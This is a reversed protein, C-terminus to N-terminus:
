MHVAKALGLLKSSLKLGADQAAKLNVEFRIRNQDVILSIVGGQDVFGPFDGVTLINLGHTAELVQETRSGEAAAVFLLHCGKLQSLTVRQVQVPRTGVMKGGLLQQLDSDFSSDGFVCFRIPDSGSVFARPPWEVFKAFNYIFAAKVQYETIAETQACVWGPSVTVFLVALLIAFARLRRFSGEANTKHTDEQEVSRRLALLIAGSQWELRVSLPHKRAPM